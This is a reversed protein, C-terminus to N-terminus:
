GIMAIEADPELLDLTLRAGWVLAEPTRCGNLAEALPLPASIAYGQLAEVGALVAARGIALDSVYEAVTGIHM